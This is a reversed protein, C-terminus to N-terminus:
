KWIKIKIEQVSRRLVRIDGKLDRAKKQLNRLQNFMEPNLGLEGAVYLNWM